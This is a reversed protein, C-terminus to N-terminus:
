KAPITEEAPAAEGPKDAQKNAESLLKEIAQSRQEQKAKTEEAQKQEALWHYDMEWCMPDEMPSPIVALLAAIQAATGRGRAGQAAAAPPRYQRM